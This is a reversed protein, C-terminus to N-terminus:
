IRIDGGEVPVLRWVPGVEGEQGGNKFFVNKNLICICPTENLSKWTHIYIYYGLHTWGKWKEGQDIWWSGPVRVVLLHDSGGLHYWYHNTNNVKSFSNALCKSEQDAQVPIDYCFVISQPIECWLFKNESLEPSRYNLILTYALSTVLSLERNPKCLTIKWQTSVHNRITHIYTHIRLFFCLFLSQTLAFQKRNDRRIFVSLAKDELCWKVKIVVKSAGHVFITVSITLTEAYSNPLLPYFCSVVTLLVYIFM